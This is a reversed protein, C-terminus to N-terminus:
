EGPCTVELGGDSTARCLNGCTENKLCDCSPSTGCSTPLRECAFGAPAGPVGSGTMRCYEAGLLCFHAGCGFKGSPPTCGGLVNVDAGANEAECESDYVKRDCGCVPEYIAPCGQPRVECTGSGDNGGCQKDNYNCYQGTACQIGALGGCTVGGTTTTGSTTTGSSTHTTTGTTTPEGAGGNGLSVSGGCAAMLVAALAVAGGLFIRNTHM